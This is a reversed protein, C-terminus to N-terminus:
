KLAISLTAAVCGLYIGGCETIAVWGSRGEMCERHQKRCAELDAENDAATKELTQIRKQISTYNQSLDIHQGLNVDGGGYNNVITVFQTRLNDAAEAVDPHGTATALDKVVGLSGVNTASSNVVISLTKPDIPQAEDFEFAQGVKVTQGKPKAVNTESSGTPTTSSSRSDTPKNAMRSLMSRTTRGFFSPFVLM